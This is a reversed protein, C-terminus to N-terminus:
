RKMHGRPFRKMSSLISKKCVGQVKEICKMSSGGEKSYEVVRIHRGLVVKGESNKFKEPTGV